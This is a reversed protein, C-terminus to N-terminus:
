IQERREVNFENSDRCDKWEAHVFEVKPGVFDKLGAHETNSLHRVKRYLLSCCSIRMKMGVHVVAMQYPHLTSIVIASVLVLGGAFLLAEDKQIACQDPTWYYPVRWLYM